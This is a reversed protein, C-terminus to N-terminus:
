QLGVVHVTYSNTKALVIGFIVRAAHWIRLSILFCSAPCPQMINCQVNRINICGPRINQCKPLLRWTKRQANGVLWTAPIVSADDFRPQNTYLVTEILPTQNQGHHHHWIWHIKCLFSDPFPPQVPLHKPWSLESPSKSPWKTALITGPVYHFRFCRNTCPYKLQNYSKIAFELTGEAASWAANFSTFSRTLSYFGWCHTRVLVIPPVKRYLDLTPENEGILDFM